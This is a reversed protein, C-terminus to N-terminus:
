GASAVQEAVHGRWLAALLDTQTIMGALRGAPDVIIAEHHFGSSLMPLLEDIPTETGTICPAHNMVDEVHRGAGALLEAHGVLGAVRRDTEVVPMAALHHSLLRDRAQGVGEGVHTAIVDKSMIQGCRIVGHLRRHARAEVQRFLTDLDDRSVDLLDHYRALTADIDATTYGVRDQPPSDTTGHRNAAPPTVRHPYSHGTLAHFIWAALVLTVANVGVPMLAFSWGAGTIAPGGMVATLAMAGGPPHLCRCLSMGAIAGAVALTAALLPTDIISACGIGVLASLINGGIVSWPQAMPSAPVAFLLVASAGMPAILMPLSASSGLWLHGILGTIFLGLLAGLSARISGLRGVPTSIRIIRTLTM